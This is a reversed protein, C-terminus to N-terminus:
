EEDIKDNFSTKFRNFISSYIADIRPMDIEHNQCDLRMQKKVTEKWASEFLMSLPKGQYEFKRCYSVGASYARDVFLDIRNEVRETEELHNNIKIRIVELIIEGQTRAMEASIIARTQDLNIDKMAEGDFYREIKSLTKSSTIQQWIFVAAIAILIGYETIFKATSFPDSM